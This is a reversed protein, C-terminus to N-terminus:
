VCCRLVAIACFSSLSLNKKLKERVLLITV